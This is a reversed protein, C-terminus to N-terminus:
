LSGRQSGGRAWTLQNQSNEHPTRAEEPEVIRGGRGCTGGLELWHKAIPRQM